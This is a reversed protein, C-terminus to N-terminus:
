EADWMEKTIFIGTDDKAFDEYRSENEFDSRVNDFYDEEDKWTKDVENYECMYVYQRGNDVEVLAHRSLFAGKGTEIFTMSKINM